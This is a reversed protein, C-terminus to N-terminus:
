GEGEPFINASKKGAGAKGALLGAGYLVVIPAAVLSQNVPDFTPTIIAGLIFALVFAYKWKRAIWQPSVVGIKSLFFM